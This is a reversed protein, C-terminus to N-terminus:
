FCKKNQFYQAAMKTAEETFTHFIHLKKQALIYTYTM